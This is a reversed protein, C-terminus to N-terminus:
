FMGFGDLASLQEEAVTKEAMAVMSKFEREEKARQRAEDALRIKEQEAARKAEEAARAEREAKRQALWNPSLHEGTDNRRHIVEDDSADGWASKVVGRQM